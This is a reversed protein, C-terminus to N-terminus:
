RSSASDAQPESVSLTLSDVPAKSLASAKSLAFYVVILTAM